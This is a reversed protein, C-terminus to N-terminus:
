VSHLVFLDGIDCFSAGIDCFSAGISQGARQNCRTASCRLQHSQRLKAADSGRPSWHDRAGRAIPLARHAQWRWGRRILESSGHLLRSGGDRSQLVRGRRLPGEGALLVGLGSGHGVLAPLYDRSLLHSEVM